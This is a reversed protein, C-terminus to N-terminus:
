RREEEEKGPLDFVKGPNMIWKEDVAGKLQRMVDVTEEGLEDVLCGKKGIGIAHEGSVTGEMELARGMMDHVVKEVASKQKPNKPDYFM